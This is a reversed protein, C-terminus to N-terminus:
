ARFDFGQYQEINWKASNAYGQVALGRLFDGPALQATQGRARSSALEQIGYIATGYDMLTMTAPSVIEGNDRIDIGTTTRIVERDEKTLNKMSEPGSGYLRDELGGTPHWGPKPARSNVASFWSAGMGSGNINM